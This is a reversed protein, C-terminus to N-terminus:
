KSSVLWSEKQQSAVGIEKWSTEEMKQALSLTDLGEMGEFTESNEKQGM